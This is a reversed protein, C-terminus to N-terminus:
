RIDAAMPGFPGHANSLAAYAENRIVAIPKTAAIADIVSGSAVYNYGSPMPLCILDMDAVAAVYLDRPVPEPSPARRLVSVDLYAANKNALGIAHFELDPGTFRHALEVFIDFGKTLSCHGLFGVKIPAQIIKTTSM